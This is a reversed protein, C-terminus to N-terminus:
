TPPFLPRKRPGAAEAKPGQKEISGRLCSQDLSHCGTALPYTPPMLAWDKSYSAFSSPAQDLGGGGRRLRGARSVACGGEKAKATGSAVASGPV